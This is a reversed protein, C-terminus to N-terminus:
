WVVVNFEFDNRFCEMYHGIDQTYYSMNLNEIAKYASDVPNHYSRSPPLEVPNCAILVFIPVVLFLSKTYNRFQSRVIKM